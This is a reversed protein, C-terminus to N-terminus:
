PEMAPSQLLGILVHISATGAPAPLGTVIVQQMEDYPSTETLVTFSQYGPDGANPYGLILNDGADRWEINVLLKINAGILPDAAEHGVFARLEWIDGPVSNQKQWVASLDWNGSNSGALRAARNGHALLTNTQSVANFQNWGSFANGSGVEFSPNALAALECQAFTVPTFQLGAM